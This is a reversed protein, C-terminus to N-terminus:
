IRRDASLRVSSTFSRSSRALTSAPFSSIRGRRAERHRLQEARKRPTIFGSCCFSHPPAPIEPVRRNGLVSCDPAACEPAAYPRLWPRAPKACGSRWRAQLEGFTSLHPHRGAKIGSRPGTPGPRRHIGADADRRCSWSSTNWSYRGPRWDHQLGAGLAGSQAQRQRAPQGCSSPPDRQGQAAHLADHTLQKLRTCESRTKPCKSISTEEPLDHRLRPFM